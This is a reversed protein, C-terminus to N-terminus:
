GFPDKGGISKPIQVPTLPWSQSVIRCHDPGFSKPIQIGALPWRESVSEYPDKAEFALSGDTM